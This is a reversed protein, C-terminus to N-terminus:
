FTGRAAATPRYQIKAPAQAQQLSLALHKRYSSYFHLFFRCSWGKYYTLPIQTIVRSPSQTGFGHYIFSIRQSLIPFPNTTFPLLAVHKLVQQIIRNTAQSVFLVSVARYAEYLGCVPLDELKNRWWLSIYGFITRLLVMLFLIVDMLQNLSFFLQKTYM